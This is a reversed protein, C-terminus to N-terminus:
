QGATATQLAHYPHGDILRPLNDLQCRRLLIPSLSTQHTVSRPVDARVADLQPTGISPTGVHAM